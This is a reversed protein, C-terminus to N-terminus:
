DWVQFLHRTLEVRRTLIHSFFADHKTMQKLVRVVIHCLRNSNEWYSHCGLHGHLITLEDIWRQSRFSAFLECIYWWGVELLEDVGWMVWVGRYSLTSGWPMCWCPTHADPAVLPGDRYVKWWPLIGWGNRSATSKDRTSTGPVFLVSRTHLHNVLLNTGTSRM